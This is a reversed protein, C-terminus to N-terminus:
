IFSSCYSLTQISHGGCYPERSGTRLYMKKSDTPKVHPLYERARWGMVACKSGDTGCGECRGEKFESWSECEHSVFECRHHNISIIWLEIARQHNCVLFSRIGKVVGDIFVNMITTLACGPQQRGSNPYFDLHGIAQRMGLGLVLLPDGDTHIVDVFKADGRDLRITTPMYEFYPGAPDLGTIRDLGPLMKGVYGACHAGLSHGILHVDELKLGKLEQLYRLILSIEAAVVRINAVSQVYPFSNGGSWDVLIVNYPGNLLIQDKMTREWTGYLKSDLFGHINIKTPLKADFNSKLITDNRWTSIRDLEEPNKPTYLDFRTNITEPNDPFVNHTRLKYDETLHFCGLRPYCPGKKVAVGPNVSLTITLEFIPIIKNIIIWIEKFHDGIGIIGKLRSSIGSKFM